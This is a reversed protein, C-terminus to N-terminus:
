RRRRTGFIGEVVGTLITKTMRSGLIEEIPSKQSRSRSSTTTSRSRSTTQTRRWDREDAARRDKEEKAAQKELTERQKALAADAKARDIRAQDASAAEHAKELKATLIERASDRDLAIGYKALLPSARVAADIEADPSPSM